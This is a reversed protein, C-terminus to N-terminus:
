GLEPLERSYVIRGSDDTGEKGRRKFLLCQSQVFPIKAQLVNAHTLVGDEDLCRHGSSM